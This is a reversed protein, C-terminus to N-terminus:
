IERNLLYVLKFNVIFSLFHLIIQLLLVDLTCLSVRLFNGRVLLAVSSVFTLMRINAVPLANTVKKQTLFTLFDCLRPDLAIFM